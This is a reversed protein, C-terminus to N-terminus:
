LSSLNNTKTEKELIPKHCIIREGNFSIDGNKTREFNIIVKLLLNQLIEQSVSKGLPIKFVSEVEILYYTSCFGIDSM